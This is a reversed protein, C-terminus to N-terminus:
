IQWMVVKTKPKLREMSLSLHVGFEYNTNKQKNESFLQAIRCIRWDEPIDGIWEVGSGKMKYM